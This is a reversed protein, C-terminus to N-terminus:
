PGGFWEPPVVEPSPDSPMVLGKVWEPIPAGPESARRIRERTPASMQLGEAVADAPSYPCDHSGLGHQHYAGLPGMAVSAGAALAVDIPNDYDFGIESMRRAFDSPGTSEVTVMLIM